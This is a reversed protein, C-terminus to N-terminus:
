LLHEQQLIAFQLRLVLAMVTQIQASTATGAQIAQTAVAAASTSTPDLIDRFTARDLYLQNPPNISVAVGNHTLTSGLLQWADQDNAVALLAPNTSPDFDLTNATGAPAAPYNLVDDPTILIRLLAGNADSYFKAM